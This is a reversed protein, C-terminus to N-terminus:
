IDSGGGGGTCHKNRTHQVFYLIHSSNTPISVVIILCDSKVEAQYQCPLLGM